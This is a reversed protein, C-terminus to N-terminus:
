IIHIYIDPVQPLRRLRVALRRTRQHLELEEALEVEHQHGGEGGNEKRGKWAGDPAVCWYVCWYVGTYGRKGEEKGVKGELFRWEGDGGGGGEDGGGEGRGGEGGGVGGGRDRKEAIGRVPSHLGTGRGRWSAKVRANVGGVGWGEGGWGM